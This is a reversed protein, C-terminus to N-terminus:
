RYFAITREREDDSVKDKLNEKFAHAVIVEFRLPILGDSGRLAELANLLRTFTGKGMLGARRTQMPNGGLSQLDHLLAMADRYTFELWERELVPSPFGAQVLADGLQQCDPFPMLYSYGDMGAFAQHLHHLSGCGLCSFLLLGDQRLMQHWNALVAGIDGAWHLMMNSWVLNFSEPRFPMAEANCCLVGVPEEGSCRLAALPAYACDLGVASAGNFRKRLAELDHGYGCGVDIFSDVPLAMVSLREHLLRAVTRCLFDGGKTRPVNEFLRRVIRAVPHMSSDSEM